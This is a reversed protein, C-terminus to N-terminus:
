KFELPNIPTADGTGGDKNDTKKGLGESDSCLM